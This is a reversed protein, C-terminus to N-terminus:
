EKKGLTKGFLCYVRNNEGRPRDALFSVALPCKLMQKKHMQAFVIATNCWNYVEPMEQNVDTAPLLQKLKSVCDKMNTSALIKVNRHVPSTPQRKCIYGGDHLKLPASGIRRSSLNLKWIICKRRHNGLVNVSLSLKKQTCCMKGGIGSFKTKPSDPRNLSRTM